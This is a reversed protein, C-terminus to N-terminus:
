VYEFKYLKNIRKNQCLIVIYSTSFNFYKACSTVSDFILVSGDIKNTVKIKKRINICSRPANEYANEKKIIFCCTELSYTKYKSNQQKKDKDLEYNNSNIWLEYGEILPLDELFNAFCLWRDCVKCNKYSPEKELAKENYCRTIMNRWLTYERITGKILKGKSDVGIYGVGCITKDYPNKIEGKRIASMSTKVEYGFEDLFKIYVNKSNTYKVIIFDTGYTNKYIEGDRNKLLAM